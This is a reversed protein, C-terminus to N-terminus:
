CVEAPLCNRKVKPKIKGLAIDAAISAEMRQKVEAAAAKFDRVRMEQMHEWNSAGSGNWVGGVEHLADM